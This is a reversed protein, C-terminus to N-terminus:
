GTGGEIGEEDDDSDSLGSPAGVSASTQAAAELSAAMRENLIHLAAVYLTTDLDALLSGVRESLLDSDAHGVHSFDTGLPAPASSM